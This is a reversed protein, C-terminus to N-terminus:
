GVRRSMWDDLVTVSGGASSAVEVLGAFDWVGWVARVGEVVWFVLASLAVPLLLVL